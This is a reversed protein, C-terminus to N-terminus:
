SPWCSLSAIRRELNESRSNQSCRQTSTPNREYMMKCKLDQAMVNLTSLKRKM